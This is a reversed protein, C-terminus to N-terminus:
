KSIMLFGGFTHPLLAPMLFVSLQSLRHWVYLIINLSYPGSIYLKGHLTQPVFVEVAGWVQFRRVGLISISSLLIVVGRSSYLVVLAIALM